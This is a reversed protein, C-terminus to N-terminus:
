LAEYYEDASAFDEPISNVTGTGGTYNEVVYKSVNEVGSTPTVNLPSEKTCAFALALSAIFIITKKM